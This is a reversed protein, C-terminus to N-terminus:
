HYDEISIICILKGQEDTELRLVLRYQRNLRISREGRLGREGQLKEFHLSKITRLDNEDRASQIVFMKEFFADVVGPPYRTAGMRDTYLQQLKKSAFIFRM